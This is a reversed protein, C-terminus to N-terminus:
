HDCIIDLFGAKQAWCNFSRFPKKSHQSPSFSVLMPTHDYEGEVLFSVLSTPFCDEWQDNGLVRDIKSM